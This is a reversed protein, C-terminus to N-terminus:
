TLTCYSELRQAARRRREGNRHFLSSSQRRRNDHLLRGTSQLVWTDSSSGSRLLASNQDEGLGCLLWRFRGCGGFTAKGMLNM